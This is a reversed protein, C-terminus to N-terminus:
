LECGCMSRNVCREGGKERERNRHRQLKPRVLSQTSLVIGLYNSNGHLTSQPDARLLPRGQEIAVLFM